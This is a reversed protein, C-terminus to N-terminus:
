RSLWREFSTERTISLPSNLRIGRTYRVELNSFLFKYEGIDTANLNFVGELKGTEFHIRKNSPDRIKAYIQHLLLFDLVWNNSYKM